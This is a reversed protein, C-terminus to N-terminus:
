TWLLVVITNSDCEIGALTQLGKKPLKKEGHPFGAQRAESTLLKPGLLVSSTANDMWSLFLGDLRAVAAEVVDVDATEM